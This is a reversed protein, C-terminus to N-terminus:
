EVYGLARLAEERERREEDSLHMDPPLARFGQEAYSRLEQAL